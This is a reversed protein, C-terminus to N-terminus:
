LGSKRILELAEEQKQKYVEKTVRREKLLCDGLDLSTAEGEM